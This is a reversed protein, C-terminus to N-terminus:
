FHREMNKEANMRNMPQTQQYLLILAGLDQTRCKQYGHQLNIPESSRLPEDILM